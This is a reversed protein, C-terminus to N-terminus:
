DNLALLVRGCECRRKVEALIAGPIEERPKCRAAFHREDGAWSCLFTVIGGLPQHGMGHKPMIIARSIITIKMMTAKTMTIGKILENPLPCRPPVSVIHRRRRLPRGEVDEVLVHGAAFDVFSFIFLAAPNNPLSSGRTRCFESLRITAAESADSLPTFKPQSRCLHLLVWLILSEVGITLVVGAGTRARWYNKKSKPGGACVGLALSGWRTWFQM